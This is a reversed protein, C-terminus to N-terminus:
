KRSPRRKRGKVRLAEPVEEGPLFWNGTREYEEGRREARERRMRAVRRREEEDDWWIRREVAIEQSSLPGRRKRGAFRGWYDGLAQRRWQARLLMLLQDITMVPLDGFEEEAWLDDAGDGCLAANARENAARELRDSAIALAKDMEAKFLPSRGRRAYINQVAVGVAQAAMSINGCTALARLFAQEGRFGIGGAKARRLQLRGDKLRTVAPEGGATKFRAPAKASDPWRGTGARAARAPDARMAAQAATLAADWEAAFAAHTTRRAYLTQTRLGCERAALMVNGTEALLRLFAANERAQRRNFPRSM